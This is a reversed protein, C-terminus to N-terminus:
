HMWRNAMPQKWMKALTLLATIFMPASFHWNKSYTVLLLIAMDDTNLNKLYKWVTKLLLQVLKCNWLHVFTSSAVREIITFPNKSASDPSDFYIIIIISQLGNFLLSNMNIYIFLSILAPFLFSKRATSRWSILVHLFLSPNLLIVM